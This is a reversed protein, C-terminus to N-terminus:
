ARLPLGMQAPDKGLAEIGSPSVTVSHCDKSSVAWCDFYNRVVWGDKAKTWSWGDSSAVCTVEGANDYDFCFMKDDQRYMFDSVQGLKNKRYSHGQSSILALEKVTRESLKATNASRKAQQLSTARIYM